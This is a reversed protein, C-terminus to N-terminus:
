ALYECSVPITEKTVGATPAASARFDQVRSLAASHTIWKVVCRAFM